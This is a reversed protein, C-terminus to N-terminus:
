EASGQAQCRANDCAEEADALAQALCDLEDSEAFAACAAEWGLAYDESPAPDPPIFGYQLLDRLCRARWIHEQSDRYLLSGAAIMRIAEVAAPVQSSYSARIEDCLANWGRVFEWKSPEPPAIGRWIMERAAATAAILRILSLHRRLKRADDVAIALAEREGREVVIQEYYDM